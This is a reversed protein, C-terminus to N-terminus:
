AEIPIWADLRDMTVASTEDFSGVRTRTLATLHGVTGLKRAIDAALVRIYTGRGCIVGLEMEAPPRWDLLEIRAIHVNRARREIEIGQRALRYLRQGGVKLASYMPPVQPIDGVFAALSSEVQGLSLAPVPRLATVKGTPDLTDTAVGLKLRARYEKELNMLDSVRKTAAGFCVVLVGTAFPDLSGAHGVKRVGSYHRVKKVVDFSTWGAPKWFAQVLEM